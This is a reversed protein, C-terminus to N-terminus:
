FGLYELEHLTLMNYFEYSQGRNKYLIEFRPDNVTIFNNQVLKELHLTHNSINNRLDRYVYADVLIKRINENPLIDNPVPNLMAM